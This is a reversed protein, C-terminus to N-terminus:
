SGSSSGRDFPLHLPLTASDHFRASFGVRPSEALRPVPPNCEERLEVLKALETKLLPLSIPKMLVYDMGVEFCHERTKTDSNATLACILPREPKEYRKVLETAVAFGDMEPMCLDLLLIHFQNPGQEAIIDLCKQGSDLVTSKCGINDLLRRTVIRNISNDDVVMVQLGALETPTPSRKPSDQLSPEKRDRYIGITIYMKCTTGKGLGESELWIKGGMLQLLVILRVM